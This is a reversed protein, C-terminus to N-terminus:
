LIFFLNYIFEYTNFSTPGGVLSTGCLVPILGLSFWLCLAIIIGYVFQIGNKLDLILKFGTIKLAVFAILANFYNILIILLTRISSNSINNLFRASLTVLSILILAIILIILKEKKGHLKEKKM